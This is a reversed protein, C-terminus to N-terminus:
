PEAATSTASRGWRASSTFFGIVEPSGLMEGLAGILEASTHRDLDQPEIFCMLGLLEATEDPHKELVADLMHLASEKIQQDLPLDERLPRRLKKLETLDLWREAQRRIRNTQKLFERPTCNALHKM